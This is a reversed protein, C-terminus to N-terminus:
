KKLKLYFRTGQKEQTEFAITGDNLKVNDAVAMLGLGTGKEGQTGSRVKQKGANFMEKQIHKPIGCGSDEVTIQTYMEDCPNIVVKVSGEESFKIANSILNRMFIGYGERNCTATTTEECKLSLIINKERARARYLELIKETEPKLLLTQKQLADGSNKSRAWELLNTLMESLGQANKKIEGIMPKLKEPEEKQLYYEIIEASSQYTATASKLDHSIIAFLQNLTENLTFLEQNNRTLTKKQKRLKSFLLLLLVIFSLLLLSTFIARDRQKRNFALRQQQIENEAELRIIEAEKQKNQYVSELREVQQSASLNFISDNLVKYNEFFSLSKEYDGTEKYFAYMQKSIGALEKISAAKAYDFASTLYSEAQNLQGKQQYLNAMHGHLISKQAANGSNEFIFFANQLYKEAEKTKGINLYANGLNAYRTALRLSDAFQKELDLARNFWYIASDYVQMTQHVMGINNYRISLARKHEDARLLNASEHYYYLANKYKGWDLHIRGLSNLTSSKRLTDNDGYDIELAELFYKSAMDFDGLDHYVIGLNSKIDSLDGHFGSIGRMLNNAKLLLTKATHVDGIYKYNLGADNLMNALRITDTRTNRPAIKIAYELYQTSKELSDNYYYADAVARAVKINIENNENLKESIEFLVVSFELMKPFNGYLADCIELGTILKHNGKQNDYVQILSDIESPFAHAPILLLMLSSIIMRGMSYLSM